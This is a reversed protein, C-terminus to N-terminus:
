NISKPDSSNPNNAVVKKVSKNIVEGFGEDKLIRYVRMTRSKKVVNEYSQLTQIYEKQKHFHRVSEIQSGLKHFFRRIVNTQADDADFITRLTEDTENGVALVGLGHGHLFEFHARNSKIEDWFKWVGFGGERVNTDHFLVVGRKSIKPLWTQFDNAVAEYTHFGDIHLLDISGDAFHSVAEEFTSQLLRSFGAYLPDHHAELKTLVGSELFGAHEDGKWTDIAYCKSATELSKVAQCFACYSVGHWSGLEVFVRPRLVDILFMAFPIHETWASEGLWIPFELCIPHELPNFLEKKM